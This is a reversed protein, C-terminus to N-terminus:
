PAESIHRLKFIGGNGDDLGTEELVAKCVKYCTAHSLSKGSPTSPFLVDGPIGEENRRAIWKALLQRAWAAISTARAPTNGNGPLSLKWPM